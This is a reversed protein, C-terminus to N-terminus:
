KVNECFHHYPIPINKTQPRMKPVKTLELAGLFVTTNVSSNYVEMLLSMGPVPEIILYTIKM